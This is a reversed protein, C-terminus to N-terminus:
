LVGLETRQLTSRGRDHVRGRLQRVAAVLQADLRSGTALGRADCREPGVMSTPAPLRTTGM